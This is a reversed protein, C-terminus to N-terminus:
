GVAPDHPWTRLSIFENVGLVMSRKGAPTFDGLHGRPRYIGDFRWESDGTRDLAFMDVHTPQFRPEFLFIAITTAWRFRSVNRPNALEGLLRPVPSGVYERMVREFYRTSFINEISQVVHDWDTLPRGTFRNVGASGVLM